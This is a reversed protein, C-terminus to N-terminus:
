SIVGLEKKQFEELLNDLKELLDNAEEEDYQDILKELCYVPGWPKCYSGYKLFQNLSQIPRTAVVYNSYSGNWGTITLEKIGFTRGMYFAAKMVRRMAWNLHDYIINTAAVGPHTAFSYINRRNLRSNLAVAIADTVYKSSEYPNAGENCQYDLPDYTERKATCSGTWVIRSRDGSAMLDELQRVMVYHGFVNCAFTEGLGESTISGISQIASKSETLLGRLDTM